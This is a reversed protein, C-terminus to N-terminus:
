IWLNDENRKHSPPTWETAAQFDEQMMKQIKSGAFNPDNEIADDTDFDEDNLTGDAHFRVASCTECDYMGKRNEPVWGQKFREELEALDGALTIPQGKVRYNEDEWYRMKEWLDPYDSWLSHLAPPRQKICLYCGLRRFSVYLINGLGLHDLYAMCDQETWDWEVLPYRYRYGRKKDGSARHSEDSAIGVYEWVKGELAGMENAAKELPEVKAIRSWWCPSLVLPAGRIMGKNAGRTVKGYFFDEWKMPPQLSEIKPAEPFHTDLYAQIREIYEYMEPFEFTTDAFVIRDVPYNEPDNLELMRLLMATSDKGGSFCVMGKKQGDFVPVEPGSEPLDLCDEM